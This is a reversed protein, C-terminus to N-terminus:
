AARNLDTTQRTTTQPRDQQGLQPPIWVSFLFPLFLWNKNVACSKLFVFRASIKLLDLDPVIVWLFLFLIVATVCQLFAKQVFENIYIGIRILRWFWENCTMQTAESMTHCHETQWMYHHTVGFLHEFKWKQFCFIWTMHEKNGLQHWTTESEARTIKWTEDLEGWVSQQQIIGM